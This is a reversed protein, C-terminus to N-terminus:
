WTDPVPIIRYMYWHVRGSERGDEQGDGCGIGQDVDDEVCNSRESWLEISVCSSAIPAATRWIGCHRKSPAEPVGADAQQHPRAEIM